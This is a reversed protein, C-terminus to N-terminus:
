CRNCCSAPTGPKLESLGEAPDGSAEFEAQVIKGDQSSHHNRTTTRLRKHM